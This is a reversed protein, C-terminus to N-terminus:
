CHRMKRRERVPSETAPSTSSVGPGHTANFQRGEEDRLFRLRAGLHHIDIVVKPQANNGLKRRSMCGTYARVTGNGDRLVIRDSGRKYTGPKWGQSRPSLCDKVSCILRDLTNKRELRVVRASTDELFAMFSQLGGEPISMKALLVPQQQMTGANADWLSAVLDKLRKSESAVLQGAMDQACPNNFVVPNWNGVALEWTGGGHNTRRPDRFTSSNAPAPWSFTLSPNPGPASQVGHGLLLAQALGHFATSKTCGGVMVILPPPYKLQKAKSRFTRVHSQNISVCGRCCYNDLALLSSQRLSLM